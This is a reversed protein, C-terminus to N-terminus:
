RFVFDCPSFPTAAKLSAMSQLAEEIYKRGTAIYVAGQRM